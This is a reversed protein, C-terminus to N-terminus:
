DLEAARNLSRIDDALVPLGEVFSHESGAIARATATPLHEQYYALHAFPVERDDRSHYLFIRSTPLRSAVDDPVAFEEYAWGDPGWDPVSILFLARVPRHYLGEAFYKLVVSGGFSHGVVIVDKDIAELQQAIRDRWPRYRPDDAGPMEPAIVRYSSGLESALYAALRGSGDPEHMNGAGQIFLIPQTDMGTMM